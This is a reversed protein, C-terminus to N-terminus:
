RQQPRTRRQSGRIRREPRAARADAPGARPRGPLLAATPRGVHARVIEMHHPISLRRSVTGDAAVRMNALTAEIATDSWDSHGNRFWGRLEDAPRGDIDPPRLTKECAEWSPFSASLDSWGGDVLALAAAVGAHRAAVQVAVDGGWSQGAVVAGSIGLAHAVAAVDDAATATTYGTTPAESDGHSRLDIAVAPTGPLPWSRLM